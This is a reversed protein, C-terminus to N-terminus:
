WTYLIKRRRQASMCKKIINNGADRGRQRERYVCVCERERKKEKEIKKEEERSSFLRAEFQFQPVTDLSVRRHSTHTYFLCSCNACM